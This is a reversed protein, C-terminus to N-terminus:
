TVHGIEHPALHTIGEIPQQRIHRRLIQHPQEHPAQEVQLLPEGPELLEHLADLPLPARALM